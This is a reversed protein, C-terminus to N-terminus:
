QIVLDTFYATRVKGTQLVANTRFIIEDRLKFKGEVSRISDFNKSSLLILLSDRVRAMKKQLEESAEPSEVELEVTIRLYKSGEKDALNVIFTELPVMTGVTDEPHAEEENKQETKETKSEAPSTFKFYVFVGGGGLLISILFVILIMVVPSGAKEKAEGKGEDDGEAM